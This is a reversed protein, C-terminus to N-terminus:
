KRNPESRSKSAFPVVSAIEAYPFVTLPTAFWPSTYMQLVPANVAEEDVTNAVGDRVPVDDNVAAVVADGVEDGVAVPLVVDVLVRVGETEAAGDAGMAHSRPNMRLAVATSEADAATAVAAAAESMSM